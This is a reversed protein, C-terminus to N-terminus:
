FQQFTFYKYPVFSYVQNVHVDQICGIFNMQSDSKEIGSKGGSSGVYIDKVTFAAHFFKNQNKEM